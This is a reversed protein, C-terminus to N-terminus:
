QSGLQTYMAIAEQSVAPVTSTRLPEILRRAETTAGVIRFGYTFPTM